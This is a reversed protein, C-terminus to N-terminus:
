SEVAILISDLMDYGLALRTEGVAVLAPTGQGDSNHIVKLDCGVHIGM